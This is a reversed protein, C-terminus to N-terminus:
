LSVASGDKRHGVIGDLIVQHRGEQDVQAYLNEAIVNAAYEMVQGDPFEVEYVHTDLIPNTQATGLLNGDKDRKHHKVNGITYHDELLLCVQATLYADYSNVDFEDALPTAKQFDDEYDEYAPAMNQDYNALDSNAM